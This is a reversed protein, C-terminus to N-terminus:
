RATAGPNVSSGIAGPPQIRNVRRRYRSSVAGPPTTASTGTGAPPQVTPTPTPAPNVTPAPAPTPTPAPAQPVVGGNAVMARDQDILRQRESPSMYTNQPPQPPPPPAPSGGPNYGGPSGDGPPKTPDAQQPMRSLWNPFHRQVFGPDRSSQDQLYWMFDSKARAVAAPNNPDVNQRAWEPISNFELDSSPGGGGVLPEPM